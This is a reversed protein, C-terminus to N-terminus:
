DSRLTLTNERNAVSKMWGEIKQYLFVILTDVVFKQVLWSYAIVCLVTVFREWLPLNIFQWNGEGGHARRLYYELMIRQFLYLPFSCYGLLTLASNTFIYKTLTNLGQRSHLVGVILLFLFTLPLWVQEVALAVAYQEAIMGVESLQLGALGVLVDPLLRWALSLAIWLHPGLRGEVTKWTAPDFLRFGYLGNEMFNAALNGAFFYPLFYPASQTVAHRILLPVCM